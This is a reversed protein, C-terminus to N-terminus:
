RAWVVLPRNLYPPSPDWLRMRDVQRPLLLGPSLALMQDTPEEMALDLSALPQSTDPLSCTAVSSAAAPGALSMTSDPLYTPAGVAEPPGGAPAEPSPGTQPLDQGPSVALMQNIPNVVAHSGDLDPPWLQTHHHPCLAPGSKPQYMITSQLCVQNPCLSNSLYLTLSHSYAGTLDPAMSQTSQTIGPLSCPGKSPAAPGSPSHTSDPILTTAGLAEPHERASAGPSPGM